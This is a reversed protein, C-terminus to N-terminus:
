LGQLTKPYKNMGGIYKRNYDKILTGYTDHNNNMILRMGLIREKGAAILKIAEASRREEVNIHEEKCLVEVVVHGHATHNLEEVVKKMAKFRKFYTALDMKQQKLNIFDDAAQWITKIPEESRRYNFNINNLLKRLMLVDKEQHAKKFEPDETLTGKM